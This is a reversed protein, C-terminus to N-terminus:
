KTIKKKGNKKITLNENLSKITKTTNIQISSNQLGTSIQKAIYTNNNFIAKNEKVSKRNEKLLERERLLQDTANKLVHLKENILQLAKYSTDLDNDGYEELNIMSLNASLLDVMQSGRQMLYTEEQELREREENLFSINTSTTIATSNGKPVRNSINEKNLRKKWGNSSTIEFQFVIFNIILSTYFCKWRM